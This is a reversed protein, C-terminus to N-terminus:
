HMDHMLPALKGQLDILILSTQRALARAIAQPLQTM